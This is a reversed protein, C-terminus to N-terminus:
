LKIAQGTEASRYAADFIQHMLVQRAPTSLPERDQLIADALDQVPLALCPSWDPSADAIKKSELTDGSMTYLMAPVDSPIMSCDIGGASGRIEISSKKSPGIELNRRQWDIRLDDDCLMTVAFASEVDGCFDRTTALIQRPRFQAGFVHFMWDLDYVGWDMLLGGGASKKEAKWGTWAKPGPIGPTAAFLTMLRASHGADQCTIMERVAIATPTQCFDRRAAVEVKRDTRAAAKADAITRAQRGDMAFPKECVVHKGAALADLVMREHLFPPTAIYVAEVSSDSLLDRYDLHAAANLEAALSTAARQNPDAVGVVCIRPNARFAGKIFHVIEGAGIIGFRIQRDNM